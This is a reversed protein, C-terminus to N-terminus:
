GPAKALYNMSQNALGEFYGSKERQYKFANVRQYQIGAAFFEL